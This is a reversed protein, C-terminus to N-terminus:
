INSPLDIKRREAPPTDDEPDLYWDRHPSVQGCKL